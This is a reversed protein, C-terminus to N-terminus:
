NFVTDPLGKNISYGSYSIEVKGKGNQPIKKDATKDGGADYDFALGKPLKYDKTNFIFLVKDPLGWQAFKGYTMEMEYTGNEKTTTSSRLILLEKEHIYLTSVVVDSKEDMPLLKIITVAIGNLTSKGAFVATYNDGAFLNNLNISVSGKPTVSIGDQKRIRFRNPKKYYVIVNSPPVKIFSIDTKMIANAQYDNVLALKAKVNRALAGADQAAVSFSSLVLCLFLFFPIQKM